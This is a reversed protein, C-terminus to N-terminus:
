WSQMTEIVGKIRSVEHTRILDTKGLCALVSFFAEACRIEEGFYEFAHPLAQCVPWGLGRLRFTNLFAKMQYRVRLRGDTMNRYYFGLGADLIIKKVGVKEARAIEREFYDKMQTIPDASSQFDGVERVHGGQVYCIIVAADHDAVMPYILNGQAVGTLNVVSAGAELSARAVGPHYTEVSVCIKEESLAKVAPLLLNSQAVENIRDAHPLTSEAGIDILDAGQAKLIKGRQLTKELNLCVSERYWSDPSLNIVGMIVPTTNFHFRVGALDFERVQVSTEGPFQEVLEALDELRLM